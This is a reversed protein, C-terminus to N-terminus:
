DRRGARRDQGDEFIQFDGQTLDKVPVGDITPFVDVRVFNAETRFTPRQPDPPKQPAPAQAALSVAAATLLATVSCVRNPM